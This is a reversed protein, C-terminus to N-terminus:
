LSHRLFPNAQYWGNLLRSAHCDYRSRLYYFHPHIRRTETATPDVGAYAVKADKMNLMIDDRFPLMAYRDWQEKDVDEILVDSAGGTNPKLMAWLVPLVRLTAQHLPTSSRMNALVEPLIDGAVIGEGTTGSAEHFAVTMHPAVLGDVVLYNPRETTPSVALLRLSAVPDGSEIILTGSVVAPSMLIGSVTSAIEEVVVGFEGFPLPSAPLSLSAMKAVRLPTLTTGEFRVYSGPRIGWERDLMEWDIPLEFPAPALHISRAKTNLPFGVPLRACVIAITRM